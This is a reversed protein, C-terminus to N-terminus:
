IVSLVCVMCKDRKAFVLQSITDNENAEINIASIICGDDALVFPAGAPRVPEGPSTKLQVEQWGPEATVIAPNTVELIGM